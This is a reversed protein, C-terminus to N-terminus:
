SHQPFHTHNENFSKAICALFLFRVRLLRGKHKFVKGISFILDEPCSFQSLPPPPPPTPSRFDPMSIQGPSWPSLSAAWSDLDLSQANNDGGLGPADGGGGLGLADGGGGLGPADGGEGVDPADGGGGLGPADGGEGVDPADGDGLCLAVGGGGPSAIRAKKATFSFDDNKRVLIICGTTDM